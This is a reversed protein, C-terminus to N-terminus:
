RLRMRTERYTCVNLVVSAQHLPFASPNRQLHVCEASFLGPTASVCGPKTEHACMGCYFPSTYRFRMRTESYICVNRVVCPQHLPFANPNRQLHVCEASCLSPIAPVCEPKTAHACMGCWLPSTYGFRMRTESYTRVNRVVSPQHLPFAIRLQRTGIEGLFELHLTISRNPFERKKGLGKWEDNM